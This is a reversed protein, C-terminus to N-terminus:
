KDMEQFLEDLNKTKTIRGKRIDDEADQEGVQWQRTFFYAQEKPVLVKPELIIKNNDIYIELYDDKKLGL